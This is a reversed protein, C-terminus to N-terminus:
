RRVVIWHASIVYVTVYAEGVIVVVYEATALM